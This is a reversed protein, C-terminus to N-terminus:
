IQSLNRVLMHMYIRCSYVLFNGFRCISGLLSKSNAEILARPFDWRSKRCASDCYMINLGSHDSQRRSDQKSYVGSAAKDPESGDVLNTNAVLVDVRTIIARLIRVQWTHFMCNKWFQIIIMNMTLKINYVLINCGIGWIIYGKTELGHRSMTLVYSICTFVIYSLVYPPPPSILSFSFLFLFAFSLMGAIFSVVSIGHSLKLFQMIVDDFPFM